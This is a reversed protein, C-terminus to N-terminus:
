SRGAMTVTSFPSSMENRFNSLLRKASVPKSISPRGQVSLYSANSKAGLPTKRGPSFTSKEASTRVFSRSGGSGNGTTYTTREDRPRSTARPVASSEESPIAEKEARRAGAEGVPVYLATIARGPPSFAGRPLVSNKTSSKTAGRRSTFATGSAEKRVAPSVSVMSTEEDYRKPAGADPSTKSPSTRATAAGNRGSPHFANVKPSISRVNSLM